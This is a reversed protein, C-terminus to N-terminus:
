SRERICTNRRKCCVTLINANLRSRQGEGIEHQKRIMDGYVWPYSIHKIQLNHTSKLSLESRGTIVKESRIIGQRCRYDWQINITRAIM